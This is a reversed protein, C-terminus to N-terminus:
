SIRSHDYNAGKEIANTTLAGDIEGEKLHIQIGVTVWPNVQGCIRVIYRKLLIGPSWDEEHKIAALLSTVASLTIFEVAKGSVASASHARCSNLYHFFPADGM